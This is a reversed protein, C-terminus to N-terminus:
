YWSPNKQYWDVVRELGERFSVQSKFGLDRLPSSDLAYRFDHGPRDTVFEMLHLSAGMIELVEKVLDINRKEEGTGINYIRGIEGKRLVLDLAKCHDEVYIWERVNEGTGYIPIKKKQLIRSIILPIFKEPYQCPGYNNISRTILVPLRFTHYYSLALLDGSGKSASYPNRPSLHSKETFPPDGERLSGYVEDTSILLFRDGGLQHFVELLVATGLINNEIIPLPAKISRDVHTEAALHFIYHFRYDLFLREVLSFDTVSGEIFTFSPHDELDEINKLNGAYTLADLVVIEWDRYHNLLYRALHSGIFGAGGTVLVRKAM